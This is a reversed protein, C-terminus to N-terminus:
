SGLRINVLEDKQRKPHLKLFLWAGIEGNEPAGSRPM